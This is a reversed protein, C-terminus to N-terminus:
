KTQALRQTELQQYVEDLWQRAFGRMGEPAGRNKADTDDVYPLVPNKAHFGCVRAVADPPEAACDVGWYRMLSPWVIGPLQRYNVLRGRGSRARELGAKYIWNLVRGGYEGLSMRGAAEADWGFLAPELVGPIMQAGMQRSQSMLVEVPERYVFIWPVTPFAREIIPMFLAHWSDFKVFLRKEAAFRRQGLTNLLWRLWLVRQEESIGPDRAHSRLVADIPSSESIVVNQPLAALMQSILTSGCRSGHFIFGTPPLGPSREHLEGLTEMPTEHRFLLHAPNRLSQGVTQAFFPDTFRLDGLYGWDVTLGAQTWRLRIPMWGAFDKM